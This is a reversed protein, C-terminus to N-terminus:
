ATGHAAAASAVLQAVAPKRIDSHAGAFPQGQVNNIVDVADAGYFSGAAFAYDTGGAAPMTVRQAGVAQFGDSGMGGWRDAVQAETDQQALFSAKPYWRCVAWDFPTFTAVLPGHVRDAFGNLAGSRGFPNQQAGAFSWHSFAGQVLVVSAVPSDAPIGVGALTFSVLRAGFSHGILHVRLQPVRRHLDALLPGLGARGIDGARAKMISYSLVRVADKAGNVAKGFWDGLGQTSGAPPASGFVEATTQYDQKPDITLLLATEGSDEFEPAAPEPPVLSAVLGSLEALRKEKVLDSETPGLAACEDILAGIRDVTDQQAPDAFGPRLSAAIEAGSLAATGSSEAIVAGTGAQTSGAASPPTAPTDPFWLSPWYIGGFGARGLAPLTGAADRILAFMTTYLDRAAQESAGWGHSFLFLDAVGSGAVEDLFATRDAPGTLVGKEDFHLDWVPEGTPLTSM